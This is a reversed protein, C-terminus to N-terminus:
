LQLKQALLWVSVHGQMLHWCSSVSPRRIDSSSPKNLAFWVTFGSSKVLADVIKPAIPMLRGVFSREGVLAVDGAGGRDFRM